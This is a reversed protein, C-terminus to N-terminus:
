LFDVVHSYDVEVNGLLEGVEYIDSIDVNEVAISSHRILNIYLVSFTVFLMDWNSNLGMKKVRELVEDISFISARIEDIEEDTYDNKVKEKGLNIYRPSYLM